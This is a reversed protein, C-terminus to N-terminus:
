RGNGPGPLAAPSSPRLRCVQVEVVAVVQQGQALRQKGPCEPVRPRALDRLLRGVDVGHWQVDRRARRRHEPLQGGQEGDGRGRDEVAAEVEGEVNPLVLRPRPERNAIARRSSAARSNAPTMWRARGSAANSIPDPM